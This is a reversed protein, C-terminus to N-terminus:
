GIPNWGDSGALYRQPTHNAAEADSMQPRKGNVTAGPGTNRYERLRASGWPNGFMDIWPQATAITASLSTERFLVQADPGWPRGLQTTNNTAGTVTSRHILIGYPNAAPTRAATIPGGTSRRQHITARDLVATGDGFIFDVTGEVHCDAFYSRGSHVLLTDQNGLFRVGRFVARDADVTAAVAQSGVGFDNSLTLNEVGVDKAKVFFTASGYTGYGAGNSRNNVIVTQSATSGTGRLTVNPKNVTVIERYTGPKITIVRRTTSSSPVADIAAQVTRYTGTGDAAVTPRTTPPATTPATTPPAPTPTAAGVRVLEWQQHFSNTNTGQVVLAGDATSRDQVQVAKGSFRNVLRVRGGESDALTFQQNQANLDAWQRIQAGDAANWEWVDLVKGSHRAELRYAGDGTAVFQFQQNTGEGRTWQVLQAGDATSRASVDLAKGSQRNVLQYWAATDVSAASAAPAVAVTGIASLGAALAALLAVSRRRTRPARLHDTVPM